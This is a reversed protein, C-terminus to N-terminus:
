ARAAKDKQNAERIADRVRRWDHDDLVNLRAFTGAGNLWQGGDITIVEGNIYTCQDALLFTALNALESHDGQRGMPISDSDDGSIKDTPMLRDWAGKTPFPGPAIANLRIGRGGWEVALSRTM